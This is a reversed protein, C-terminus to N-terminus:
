PGCSQGSRLPGWAKPGRGWVMVQLSLGEGSQGGEGNQLVLGEGGEWAKPWGTVAHSTGTRM